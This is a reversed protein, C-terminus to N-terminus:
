EPQHDAAEVRFGHGHQMAQWAISDAKPYRLGILDREAAGTAVVVQLQHAEEETPRVLTVVDAAALRKM